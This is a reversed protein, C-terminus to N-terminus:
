ACTKKALAAKLQKDMQADVVIGAQLAVKQLEAAVHAEGGALCSRLFRGVVAPDVKEDRRSAAELMAHFVELAFSATRSKACSQALQAYLRLEPELCFMKPADKLLQLSVSWAETHALGKLLISLTTSTPKLGFDVLAHFTRLVHAPKLPFTCCGTLVTNYLMEDPRVDERLMQELMKLSSTVDGRDAYGKVVTSYAILDPKVGASCSMERLVSAAEDVRNAAVLGKTFTTCHVVNLKLGSSCLDDFVKRARDLENVGVCADLLIGFTVDSAVLGNTAMEARLEFCRSLKGARANYKMLTNYGVADLGGACVGAVALEEALELAKESTSCAALARNWSYVDVTQSNRSLCALTDQLGQPDQEGAFCRVMNVFDHGSPSAQRCLSRFIHKCLCYQGAQAVVYLLVSWLGSSGKGIRRVMHKYAAIAENFCRAAACARIACHLLHTAVEEEPAGQAVGGTVSRALAADLLRPLDSAKGARVANAILDAESMQNNARTAQRPAEIGHESRLCQNAAPKALHGPVSARALHGPTAVSRRWPASAKAASLIPPDFSATPKGKPPRLRRYAAMMASATGFVLLALAAETLGEWVAEDLSSGSLSSGAVEVLGPETVVVPVSQWLSAAFIPSQLFFM